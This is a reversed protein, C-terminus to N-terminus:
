RTEGALIQRRREKEFHALDGARRLIYLEDEAQQDPDKYYLLEGQIIDLALFPSAEPIVVLDVRPVDFLDELEMSIKVRVQASPRVGPFPQIGIDLDTEAHSPAITQQRMSNCIEAARSGFVYLASIKYREALDKLADCDVTKM